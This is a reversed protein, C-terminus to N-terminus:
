HNKAPAAGGFKQVAMLVAAHLTMLSAGAIAPGIMRPRLYPKEDQFLEEVQRKVRGHIRRSAWRDECHMLWENQAEISEFRRGKLATDQTYRIANEM